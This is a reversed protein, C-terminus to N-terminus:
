RVLLGHEPLLERLVYTRHVATAQLFKFVDFDIVDQSNEINKVANLQELWDDANYDPITEPFGFLSGNNAYEKWQEIRGDMKSQTSLIAKVIPVIVEFEVGDSARFEPHLQALSKFRQHLKECADLFTDPNSRWQSSEDSEYNFKWTLYPRDPFTHAAGHGLGHSLEEAASAALRTKFATWKNVIYTKIEDTIDDKFEFSDGNIKNVDSSIGSFGYHSFTDAYVHAAVGILYPTFGKLPLSLYHDFMENSIDSDKVCMLREEYTDGVGGPLFHFPVWVLSQDCKDLNKINTTHHASATVHLQARDKTELDKHGANDDVFQASYAIKTCTDQNLGAARAMAYTGYYHMDTQM